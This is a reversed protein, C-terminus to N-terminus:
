VAYKKNESCCKCAVGSELFCVFCLYNSGSMPLHIQAVHVAGARHFSRWLLQPNGLLVSLRICKNTYYLRNRGSVYVVSFRQPLVLCGDTMWLCHCELGYLCGSPCAFWVEVTTCINNWWNWRRWAM